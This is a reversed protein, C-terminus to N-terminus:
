YGLGELNWGVSAESVGKLEGNDGAVAKYGGVTPSLASTGVSLSGQSDENVQTNM